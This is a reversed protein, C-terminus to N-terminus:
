LLLDRLDVELAGALKEASFSAAQGTNRELLKYVYSRSLGADTAFTALSCYNVSLRRRLSKLDIVVRDGYNNPRHDVTGRCKRQKIRAALRELDTM